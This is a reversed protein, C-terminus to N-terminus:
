LDKRGNYKVFTQVAVELSHLKHACTTIFRFYCDISFYREPVFLEPTHAGWLDPNYHLDAMNLHVKIDKPITVNGYTVEEYCYRTTASYVM